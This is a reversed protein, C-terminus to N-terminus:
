MTEGCSPAVSFFPAPDNVASHCTITLSERRKFALDIEPGCNRMLRPALTADIFVRFRACQSFEVFALASRYYVIDANIPDTDSYLASSDFSITLFEEIKSSVSPHLLARVFEHLDPWFERLTYAYIISVLEDVLSTSYSKRLHAGLDARSLPVPVVDHLSPVRRFDGKIFKQQIQVRTSVGSLYSFNDDLLEVAMFFPASFKSLGLGEAVRQYTAHMSEDNPYRSTLFATKRVAFSSAGYKQVFDAVATMADSPASRPLGALAGMAEVINCAEDSWGNIHGVVFALEAQISTPKLSYFRTLARCDDGINPLPFAGQRGLLIQASLALDTPSATKRLENIADSPPSDSRPSSIAGRLLNRTRQDEVTSLTRFATTISRRGKAKSSNFPRGKARKPM